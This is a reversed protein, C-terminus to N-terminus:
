PKADAKQAALLPGLVIEIRRNQRRGEETDNSAKPRYESYGAASLMAPAVGAEDQLFRAVNIARATSLEWNTAFKKTLAGRIPNNDTHGQVEIRRNTAKKLVTGVKKLVAVGAPKLDAEGSDFLVEDVMDVKLQDQIRQVQVQHSAIEEKLEGQLEDQTSHLAALEKEKEAVKEQLESSTKQLQDRISELDAVRGRLKAIEQLDAAAQQHAAALADEHPRYMWWYLAGVTVLVILLLVALAKAM